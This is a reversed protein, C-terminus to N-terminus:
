CYINYVDSTTNHEISCNNGVAITPRSDSWAHVRQGDPLQVRAIFKNPTAKCGLYTCDDIDVFPSAVEPSSKKTSM